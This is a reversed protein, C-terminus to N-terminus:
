LFPPGSSPLLWCFEKLLFSAGQRLEIKEMYPERTFPQTILRIHPSSMYMAAPYGASPLDADGEGIGLQHVGAAAEVIGKLIGVNGRVLTSEVTSEGKKERQREHENGTEKWKKRGKKLGSKERKKRKSKLSREGKREKRQGRLGTQLGKRLRTM